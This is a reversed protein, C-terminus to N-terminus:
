KWFVEYEVGVNWKNQLDCEKGILNMIFFGTAPVGLVLGALPAFFTIGEAWISMISGVINGIKM